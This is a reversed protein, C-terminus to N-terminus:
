PLWRPPDPPNRVTWGNPMHRDLDAASIEAPTDVRLEDRRRLPDQRDAEQRLWSAWENAHARDDGGAEAAAEVADAYARLERARTWAALQKSARDANRARLYRDRAVPVAAEWRALQERHAAALRERKARAAASLEEITNFMENLKSALTWRKRDAWWRHEWSPGVELRLRGSFVQQRTPSVRQWDYKRAAVDEEAFVDRTEREESLLCRYEDEGVTILFSPEADVTLMWGRRACEDAIAQVLALARPLTEDAVALLSRDARLAVVEQRSENPEGPVAIHQRVGEGALAVLEVILPGRKMGTLKLRQQTPIEGSARAAEVARRYSARQVPTPDDIKLVGGADGLQALLDPIPLLPPEPEPRPAQRRPQPRAPEPEDVPPYDDHALYYRGDDTLAARWSAGHGRVSLLGRRELARATIRHEFGDEYVGKPRGEAVWRLVALQKDSLKAYRAV